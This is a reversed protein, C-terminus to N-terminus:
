SANRYSHGPLFKKRSHFCDSKNFQQIVAWYYKLDTVSTVQIKYRMDIIHYRSLNTPSRQAINWM